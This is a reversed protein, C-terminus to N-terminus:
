WHAVGWSVGLGASLLGAVTQLAVLGRPSRALRALPLGLVGALLAMGLTAGAGYLSMFLLGMAWSPLTAVALATLAGTGAFGHVVGVLLPTRLSTHANEHATVAGRARLVAARIARLGLVILMLAVALELSREVGPPVSARAALLLGGVLVLVAAHGLGWLTAFALTRRPSARDAVLTTVAALHDPEFAHRVGSAFGLIWGLATLM